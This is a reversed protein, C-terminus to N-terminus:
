WLWWNEAGWLGYTSVIYIGLLLNTAAHAAVCDWINRTRIMLWTVMSFWVFAAFLEGPHMLMPVATGVIIALFNVTGFPIEWWDADMVFRMLFGRLFFEEIIPVILALGLFRIALFTYEWPPNSKLEAFPNFAPREGLHEVSMLGMPGLIKPELHLSCIAIWLVVGVAGLGIALWSVRFPFKWYGPLCLLMTFATLGIKISYIIPYHEYRIGMLYVTDHEHTADWEKQWQEQTFGAPPPGMKDHGPEVSGVAMYVLFPLVYPMWSRPGRDGAAPWRPADAPPESATDPPPVDPTQEV